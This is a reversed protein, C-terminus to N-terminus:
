NVILSTTDRIISNSANTTESIIFITQCNCSTTGLSFKNILVGNEDVSESYNLFQGVTNGISDVAFVRATTLLSPRGSNRTVRTTLNITQNGYSIVISPLDTKINEPYARDFLMDMSKTIESIKAEVTVLGDSQSAILKVKAIKKDTGDIVVKSVIADIEQRDNEFKGNSTKILVKNLEKKTNYPLEVYVETSSAGDAPISTNKTSLIVFGNDINSLLYDEAKYCSSLFSVILIISILNKM